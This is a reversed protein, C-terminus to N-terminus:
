LRHIVPVISAMDDRPQCLALPHQYYYEVLEDCM